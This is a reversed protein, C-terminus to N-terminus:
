PTAPVTPTESPTATATLPETPTFNPTPIFAPGIYSDRRSEFYDFFMSGSTTSDIGNIAGLKVQGLTFNDIDINSITQMLTGDLWFSLYGDNADTATSKKWELEVVHWDNTIIQKTGNTFSYADNKVRPRLKYAGGEYALELQFIATDADDDYGDFIFHATNNAMTLSNPNFYFRARYQTEDAPSPDILKLSNTDDILAELGHNSQYASAPTISLDGGDVTSLTASWSSLDASEFDDTFLTDPRALLGPTTPANPDVGLHTGASSAFGDFYITGNGGDVDQVGLSARTISYSDNDLNTISVALQDGIYLKIFGDNANSASAAQWELEVAQWENSILVEDTEFWTGADDKGCLSLSYYAGQQQFYLCAVWSVTDTSSAMLYYGGDETIQISNPNFYFRASYHKENNPNYDYVVLDHTDNIVAQLGYAGIAAAQTSVSLDGGDTTTYGWASLDGSEFGDVFVAGVETATPIASPTRTPALTKSPTKTNTPTRSVTPTKTITPTRTVTPTYTNTGAPTVTPTYTSIDTVTPTETITNTATVTVTPTATELSGENIQEWAQDMTGGVFQGLPQNIREDAITQQLAPSAYPLLADLFAEAEEVQASTITATNGHGDLLAQLNPTLADIVDLGQGALGPNNNFISAIEAGHQYYVDIYRQGEVTTTLVEDRLRYLLAAQDAIRDYNQAVFAINKSLSALKTYSEKGAASACGYYCTHSDPCPTPTVMTSNLPSTSIEIEFNAFQDGQFGGDDGGNIEYYLM